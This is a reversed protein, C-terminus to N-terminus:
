RGAKSATTLFALGHVIMHAYLLILPVYALSCWQSSM